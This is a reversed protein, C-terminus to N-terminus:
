WSRPLPKLLYIKNNKQSIYGGDRLDKLIIAVMERSAGVRSAINQQTLKENIVRIGNHEESLKRFTATIRRYVDMLGLKRITETSEILRTALSEILGLSFEPYNSLCRLFDTKRMIGMRSNEMTMVSATRPVLKILGLEGFYEGTQLVDIIIEKGNEDDLYVKVSGELIFYLSHSEDGETILQTRIPYNRTHIQPLIDATDKSKLHKFLEFNHLQFM